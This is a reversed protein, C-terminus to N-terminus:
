KDGGLEISYRWFQDENEFIVKSAKPDRSGAPYQHVPTKDEAWAKVVPDVLRWQAEAESIHLFNANDGQMLNLLLAEYADVTDDEAQRNEGDLEISRTNIDLGPIKSQIEL